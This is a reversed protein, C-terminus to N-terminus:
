SNMFLFVLGYLLYPTVITFNTFHNNFDIKIAKNNINATLKIPENILILTGSLTQFIKITVNSLNGPIITIM